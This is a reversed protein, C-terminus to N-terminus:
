EPRRGHGWTRFYDAAWRATAVGLARLAGSTFFRQREETSPRVLLLDNPIVRETADYVRQFGSERRAVM